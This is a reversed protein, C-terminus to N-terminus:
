RRAPGPERVDPVVYVHPRVRVIVVLAILGALVVLWVISGLFTAAGVILMCGAFTLAGSVLAIERASRSTATRGASRDNLAVWAIAGVVFGLAAWGLMAGAPLMLGGVLCVLLCVGAM